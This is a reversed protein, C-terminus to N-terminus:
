EALLAATMGIRWLVSLSRVDAIPGNELIRVPWIHKRPGEGDARSPIVPSSSAVNMAEFDYGGGPVAMARWFNM